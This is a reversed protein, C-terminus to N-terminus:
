TLSSAHIRNHIDHHTVGFISKPEQKLASLKVTLTHVEERLTDVATEMASAQTCLSSVMSETVLDSHDTLAAIYPMMASEFVEGMCDFLYTQIIASIDPVGDSEASSHLNVNDDVPNFANIQEFEHLVSARSAADREL